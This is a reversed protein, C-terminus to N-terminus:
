RRAMCNIYGDGKSPAELSLGGGGGGGAGKTQM